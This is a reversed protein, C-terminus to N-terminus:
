QTFDDQHFPLVIHVEGGRELLLEAFLMDAGCALSCFGIQAKMEDLKRRMDRRVREEMWYPFRPERRDVRDLMHGSVVLIRPLHFCADLSGPDLGSHELLLRAQARTHDLSIWNHQVSQSALRYHEAARPLNGLILSAEALTAQLWYGEESDSPLRKLSEECVAAVDRAWQRAQEKQGCILGMAAANIGTYYGRNIRYGEAYLEFSMRLHKQKEEPDQSLRWMDKHTRALIGLTEEDKRGSRLLQSLIQNARKTAGTRDLALAQLQTLRLDDPFTRLGEAAMDFAMFAESLQLARGVARRYIQVHSFWIMPVRQEWLRRLQSVTLAPSRLDALVQGAEMELDADGAPSDPEAAAAHGLGHSFLKRIAERIVARAIETESECLEDYPVLCPHQKAEEDLRPGYRWGEAIRERM